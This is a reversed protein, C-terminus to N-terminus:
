FSDTPLLVKQKQLFNVYHRLVARFESLREMTLLSEGKGADERREQVRRLKYALDPTVVSISIRYSKDYVRPLQFKPSESESSSSSAPPRLFTTVYSSM